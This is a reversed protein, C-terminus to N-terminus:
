QIHWRRHENDWNLYAPHNDKFNKILSTALTTKGVQRRGGIFFMKKALDKVIFPLYVQSPLIKKNQM